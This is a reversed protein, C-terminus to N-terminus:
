KPCQLYVINVSFPWQMWRLFTFSMKLDCAFTTINNILDKLWVLCKMKIEWACNPSAMKPSQNHFPVSASLM